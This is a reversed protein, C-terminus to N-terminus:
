GAVGWEEPETRELRGRPLSGPCTSLVVSSTLLKHKIVSIIQILINTILQFTFSFVDSWCSQVNSVVGVRVSRDECVHVWGSTSTELTKLECSSCTFVFVSLSVLCPEQEDSSCTRGTERRSGAAPTIVDHVSHAVGAGSHLGCHTSEEKHYNKLHRWFMQFMSRQDCDFLWTKIQFAADNGTLTRGLDLVLPWM